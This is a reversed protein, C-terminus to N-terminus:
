EEGQKGIIILWKKTEPDTILAICTKDTKVQYNYKTNTLKQIFHKPISATSTGRQENYQIKIPTGHKLDYHSANLTM